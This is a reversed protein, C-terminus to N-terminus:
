WWRFSVELLRAPYSLSGGADWRRAVQTGDMSVPMGGASVQTRGVAFVQGLYSRTGREMAVEVLPLNGLATWGQVFHRSPCCHGFTSNCVFYLPDVLLAWCFPCFVSGLACYGQGLGVIRGIPRLLGLLDLSLTGFPWFLGICVLAGVVFGICVRGLCLYVLRFVLLLKYWCTAFLQVYVAHQPARWYVVEAM